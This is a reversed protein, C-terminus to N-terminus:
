KVCHALFQHRYIDKRYITIKIKKPMQLAWLSTYFKQISTDIPTTKDQHSVSAEKVLVNYASKMIYLRSGEMRWITANSLPFRALTISLIDRVQDENTLSKIVGVKWTGTEHNILQSVLTYRIDIVSM